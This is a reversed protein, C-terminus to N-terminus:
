EHEKKPTEAIGPRGAAIWAGRAVTVLRSRVRGDFHDVARLVAEAEPALRPAALRRWAALPISIDGLDCDLDRCAFDSQEIRNLPDETYLYLPKGCLVCPPLALPATM